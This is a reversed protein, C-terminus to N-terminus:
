AAETLRRYAALLDAVIAQAVSRDGRGWATVAYPTLPLVVELDPYPADMRRRAVFVPSGPLLGLQRLAVPVEAAHTLRFGYWGELEIM